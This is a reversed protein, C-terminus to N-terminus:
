KKSAGVVQAAKKKVKLSTITIGCASMCYVFANYRDPVSTNIGGVKPKPKAEGTKGNWMKRQCAVIGVTAGLSFV